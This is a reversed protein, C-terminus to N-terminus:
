YFTMRRPVRASTITGGRFAKTPLDELATAVKDKACLIKGVKMKGGDKYSVALRILFGKALLDSVRYPVEDKDDVGAEDIGTQTGISTYTNDPALFFIIRASPTAGSGPITTTHLKLAM